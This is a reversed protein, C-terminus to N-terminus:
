REHAAGAKARGTVVTYYVRTLEDIKDEMRDLRTLILARSKEATASDADGSAEAAVVRAEITAIREGRAMWAPLLYGAVTILMGFTAIMHAWTFGPREHLRRYQRREPTM